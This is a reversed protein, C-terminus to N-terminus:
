LAARRAIEARARSQVDYLGHVSQSHLEVDGMRGLDLWCGYRTDQFRIYDPGYTVIVHHATNM